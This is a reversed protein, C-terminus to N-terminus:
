ETVCDRITRWEDWEFCGMYGDKEVFAKGSECSLEIPDAGEEVCLWFNGITKSPQPQYLNAGECPGVTIDENVCNPSMEDAPICGAVTGNNVFYTNKDCSLSQKEGNYCFNFQNIDPDAWAENESLCGAVGAETTISIGATSTIDSTSQAWINGTLGLLCVLALLGALAEIDKWNM